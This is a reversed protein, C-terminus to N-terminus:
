SSQYKRALDAISLTSATADTDSVSAMEQAKDKLNQLRRESACEALCEFFRDVDLPKTLYENMGVLQAQERHEETAFASVGIIPIKPFKRVNEHARIAETAAIGGMNPMTLDMVIVDFKTADAIYQVVADRGDKVCTVEYALGELLELFVEQNSVNDEAILIKAVEGAGTELPREDEADSPEEDLAATSPQQEPICSNADEPSVTESVEESRDDESSAAFSPTQDEQGTGSVVQTGATVGVVGTSLTLAKGITAQLAKGSKVVTEAIYQQKIDLEGRTLLEAKGLLDNIPAQLERDFNALLKQYNRADKQAVNRDAIFDAERKRLETVDSFTVVFGGDSRPQVDTTVTKGSPTTRDFRFKGGQSFSKNVLRLQEASMDGRQATRELFESRPMGIKLYSEDLDLMEYARRNVIECRQQANWLIIGQEMTEIVDQLRLLAVEFDEQDSQHAVPNGSYTTIFGGNPLLSRKVYVLSGDEQTFDFSDAQVTRALELRESVLDEVNGEGFDGRAANFRILVELTLGPRIM